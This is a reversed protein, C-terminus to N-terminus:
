RDGNAIKYALQKEEETVAEDLYTLHKFDETEGFFHRYWTLGLTYRGFGLGAHVSDRYVEAGKAEYARLMAEGSRIINTVELKKAVEEYAARVDEFMKATTDYGMEQLRPYEAPYGWTQHICIEAHECHLKIYECLEEIYPHYSEERFSQHSVQQLTIYDWSNSKLADKISVMLGTSQGNFEFSYAKEDDLMNVYHRKLSCGGIYLNVATIEQGNAKAIEAFYRQADQSFSNGISLIKMSKESHRHAM